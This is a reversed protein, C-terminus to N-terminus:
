KNENVKNKADTNIEQQIEKREAIKKLLEDAEKTTLAVDTVFNFGNGGSVLMFYPSNNPNNTFDYISGQKDAIDKPVRYIPIDVDHALIWENYPIDGDDYNYAYVIYEDHGVALVDEVSFLPNKNYVVDEVGENQFDKNVKKMSNLMSGIHENPTANFTGKLDRLEVGGFLVSSVVGIALIIVILKVGGWGGGEGGGGSGGGGNHNNNRNGNQGGRQGSERYDGNEDMERVEEIRDNNGGFENNNGFM